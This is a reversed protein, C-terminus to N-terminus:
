EDESSLTHGLALDVCQKVWLEPRLHPTETLGFRSRMSGLGDWMSILHDALDLADISTSLFGAAQGSALVKSLQRHPIDYGNSYYLRAIDPHRRTEEFLLREFRILEPDCIIAILRNGFRVVANRFDDRSRFPLEVDFQFDSVDEKVVATFVGTMDGFHRYISTKSVRAESALRDTSVGSFGHEYFLKRAAKVIRLSTTSERSVTAPTM